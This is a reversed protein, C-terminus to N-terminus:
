EELKNAIDDARDFEMGEGRKMCVRVFDEPNIEIKEGESKNAFDEKKVGNIEVRTGRNGDKAPKFDARNM